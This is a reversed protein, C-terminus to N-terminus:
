ASRRLIKLEVNHKKPLERNLYEDIEDKFKEQFLQNRVAEKVDAPLEIGEHRERVKLIYVGRDTDFPRSYENRDLKEVQKQLDTRLDGLAIFGLDVYYGEGAEDFDDGDDIREYINEARKRAAD